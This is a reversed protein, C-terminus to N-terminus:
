YGEPLYGFKAKFQPALKPNAKLMSLAGAPANGGGAGKGIVNYKGNGDINSLVSQRANAMATAQDLSPDDRLMKGALALSDEAVAKQVTSDLDGYKDSQDDLLNQESKIRKPDYKILGKGLVAKERQRTERQQSIQEKSLRAQIISDTNKEDIQARLAATQVTTSKIYSESQQAQRTWWGQAEPSWTQFREPVPVGLKALEVTAEQASADDTVNMAIDQQAKVKSSSLKLTNEQNSLNKARLNDAQQLYDAGLKPNSISVAKGANTLQQALAESDSLKEGNLQEPLNAQMAMSALDREKDARAQDDAQQKMQTQLNQRQLSRTLMTDNVNQTELGFKSDDLNAARQQLNLKADALDMAHVAQQGELQGSYFGLGQPM